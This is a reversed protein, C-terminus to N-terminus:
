PFLLLYPKLFQLILATFSNDVLSVETSDEVLNTLAITTSSSSDEVKPQVSTDTGNEFLKYYVYGDKPDNANQTIEFNTSLVNLSTDSVTSNNSPSDIAYSFQKLVELFIQLLMLLEMVMPQDSDVNM